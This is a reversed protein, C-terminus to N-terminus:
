GNFLSKKISIDPYHMTLLLIQFVILGPLRLNKNKQKKLIKEVDINAHGLMAGNLFYPRSESGFLTFIVRKKFLKLLPLDALFFFSSDSAFIFVDYKILAWVFFPFKLIEYFMYFIIKFILRRKKISRYKNLLLTLFRFYLNNNKTTNYQFSHLYLEYFDAAIGKDRLGQSLKSLYGCTDVFGIFIRKNM